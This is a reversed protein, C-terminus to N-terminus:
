AEASLSMEGTLPMPPPVRVRVTTGDLEDVLSAAPIVGRGDLDERLFRTPHGDPAVGTAWLDAM